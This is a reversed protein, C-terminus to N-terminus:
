LGPRPPPSVLSEQPASSVSPLPACTSHPSFLPLSFSVSIIGLILWSIWLLFVDILVTISYLLILLILIHFALTEWVMLIM